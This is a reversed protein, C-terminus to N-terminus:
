YSVTGLMHFPVMNQSKSHGRFVDLPNTLTLQAEQERHCNDVDHLALLTHIHMSGTHAGLNYSYVREMEQDSTM